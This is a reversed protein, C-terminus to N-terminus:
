GIVNFTKYLGANELESQGYLDGVNGVHDQTQVSSVAYTGSASFRPLTMPCSFTADLPTGVANCESGSDGIGITVSHSTGNPGRFSIQLNSTGSLDDTVRGSVTVEASGASTNISSPSVSLSKVVPATVDGASTQNFTKYLGANELESQGYLDGVNGVHDQTQVSSV